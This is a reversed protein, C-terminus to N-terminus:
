LLNAGNMTMTCDNKLWAYMLHQKSSVKKAERDREKKHNYHRKFIISIKIIKAGREAALEIFLKAGSEIAHDQKDLTRIVRLAIM